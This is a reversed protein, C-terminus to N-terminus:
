LGVARDIVHYLAAALAFGVYLKLGLTSVRGSAVRDPM